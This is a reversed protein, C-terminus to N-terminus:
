VAGAVTGEGAATVAVAVETASVVLLAAVVIVMVAAAAPIVTVTFGVATDTCVPVVCLILAVTCLSACFLPTLQVNDPAPQLPAVHPVSDAGELAEPAAM